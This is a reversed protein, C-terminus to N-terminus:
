KKFVKSTIFSCIKHILNDIKHEYKAMIYGFLFCFVGYLYVKDLM